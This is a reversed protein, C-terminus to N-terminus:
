MPTTTLTNYLGACCYLLVVHNYEGSVIMMMIMAMAVRWRWGDADADAEDSDSDNNM